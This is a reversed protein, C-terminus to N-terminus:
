AIPYINMGIMGIRMSLCRSCRNVFREVGESQPHYPTTRTKRIDLLKCLEKFLESEFNRGQDSHIWRPMGFFNFCHTLLVDAVTSATQDKIAFAQTWKTFYDSLVLIYKNGNVTEPLEGMVDIAIREFREGAPEQQM